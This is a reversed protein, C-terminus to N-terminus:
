QGLRQLRTLRVTLPFPNTPMEFVTPGDDAMDLTIAPMDLDYPVPSAPLGQAMMVGAPVRLRLWRVAVRGNGDFAYEGNFVCSTMDAGAIINNMFTMVGWGLVQGNRGWDAKYIGPIM